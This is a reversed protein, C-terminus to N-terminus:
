PQEALIQGDHRHRGNNPRDASKKHIGEEGERVFVIAGPLWAPAACTNMICTRISNRTTVAALQATM